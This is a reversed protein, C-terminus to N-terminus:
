STILEDNTKVFGSDVFASKKKMVNATSFQIKMKSILSFDM